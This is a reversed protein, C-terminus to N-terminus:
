RVKALFTVRDTSRWLKAHALHSARARAHSPLPQLVDSPRYRLPSMKRALDSRRSLERAGQIAATKLTRGNPAKINSRNFTMRPTRPLLSESLRILTETQVPRNPSRISMGPRNAVLLTIWPGAHPSSYPTAMTGNFLRTPPRRNQPNRDGIKNAIAEAVPLAVRAKAAQVGVKPAPRASTAKMIQHERLLGLVEVEIGASARLNPPPSAARCSRSWDSCAGLDCATVVLLLLLFCISASSAGAV